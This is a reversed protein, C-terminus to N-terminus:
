ARNVCHRLGLALRGSTAEGDADHRPTRTPCRHVIPSGLRQLTVRFQSFGHRRAAIGHRKAARRGGTLWV